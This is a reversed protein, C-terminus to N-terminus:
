LYYLFHIGPLTQEITNQLHYTPGNLILRFLRLATFPDIYFFTFMYRKCELILLLLIISTGACISWKWVNIYFPVFSLSIFRKQKICYCYM